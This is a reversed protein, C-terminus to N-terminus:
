FASDSASFALCIIEEARRFYLPLSIPSFLIGQCVFACCCHKLRVAPSSIWGLCLVDTSLLGPSKAKTVIKLNSVGSRVRQSSTVALGRVRGRSIGAPVPNESPVCPLGAARGSSLSSRACPAALPFPRSPAPCSVGGPLM